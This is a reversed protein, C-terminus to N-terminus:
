EEGIVHTPTCHIPLYGEAVLAKSPLIAEDPKDSLGFLTAGQSQWQKALAQIEGTIVIEEALIQDISSDEPLRGMHQVTRKFENYRFAKFPTPDGSRVRESVSRHIERVKPSLSLQNENVYTLFDSFYILKDERVTRILDSISILGSSLILCIYVLYDQNDATFAHFAVQNFTNYAEKFAAPNYDAGLADLLTDHAAELRKADIVKDNRGRAGLITKDLDYLVATQDDIWFDKAMLFENFETLAKWRSATYITESNEQELTINQPGPRDAGIFAFGEWGSSRCINLFAQGDNMRTDGIYVIRRLGGGPHFIQNASKVMVTIVEGYEPMSKRPLFNDPFNLRDRLASIGPLRLDCPQLNRFVIQDGLFDSVTSLGFSKM